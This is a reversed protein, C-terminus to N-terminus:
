NAQKGAGPFLAANQALGSNAAWRALARAVIMGTFMSIIVGMGLTVAFGRVISTGIMFLLACTILTSVNSDRISPWAKSFGTEVATKLTKGKKLEEKVREFVLVNTDVAMGISLIMGAAGALTLVIYQNTFLLLPLKLIALFILAYVALTLDALVGLFRYVVIMYAMLIIMGILAARVSANLSDAGLTAEVTRQGALHIPAPIAGTNLNQALLQAEQINQSGTIVATGGIIESQVTPASVLQGGVFIAIRKGINNRTLEQFLKGGEEDFAIQVIPFNTTPDLTVAATRFHKGDLATDKWGSPQLSFFLFHATVAEETRTVKGTQLRTMLEEARAAAGTGTVTLSDFTAIDPSQIPEKDVRILHYGFPTETPESVRGATASFAVQEFAPVLVGRTVKGLSGGASKSPGDSERRALDNFNAGADLQRKLDKARALAQEKTRTVSAAAETAGKYAVLIHSVEAEEQGPTFGRLFLLKSTGDEADVTKLEGPQMARLAGIVGAPVSDDLVRAESFRYALGPENKQLLDFATPAENIIRGTQTRAKTVEALFIGPVQQEVARGQDDQGTSTISGELKLVQGPQADWLRELGKPLQDRFMARPEQYGQGLEDGLDQGLTTLTEGSRGIRALAADANRRVTGQFEASAETEEEKFELQITKGVTDICEQVDVVGPCEVLLHKEGGIYSPTIVAESVGLANVRKELVTRISEVLKSQQEEIVQRQLRLRNMEDADGGQAELTKLQRDISELQSRIEDESIRFDLQTGGALDLGLHFDPAQLFPPAWSRWEKPSALLLILAGIVATVAPWLYSPRNAM